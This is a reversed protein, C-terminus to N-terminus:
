NSELIVKTTLCYYYDLSKDNDKLFIFWLYEVDLTIRGEPTLDFEKVMHEALRGSNNFEMGQIEELMHKINEPTADSQMRLIIPAFNGQIIINARTGM